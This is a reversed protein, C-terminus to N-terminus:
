HDIGTRCSGSHDDHATEIGAEAFLEVWRLSLNMDIL